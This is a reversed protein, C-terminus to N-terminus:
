TALQKSADKFGEYLPRMISEINDWIAPDFKINGEMIQNRVYFYIAGLDKSIEVDFDLSNILEDVIAQARETDSEVDKPLRKEMNGKIDPILRFFEEYILLILELPSASIVKATRYKEDVATTM